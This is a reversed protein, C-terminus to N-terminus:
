WFLEFILNFNVAFAQKLGGNDAINEKVTREGNERLFTQDVKFMM